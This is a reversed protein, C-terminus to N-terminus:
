RRFLGNGNGFGFMGGFGNNFREFLSDFFDRLRDFIGGPGNGNGPGNVIVGHRGGDVNSLVLETDTQPDNIRIGKEASAHMATVADAGDGLQINLKGGVDIGRDPDLELQAPLLSLGLAVEDELDSMALIFVQDDGDGTNLTANREVLVDSIAIVDDDDGTEVTLNRGVGVAGADVPLDPVDLELFADIGAAALAEVDGTAQGPFHGIWVQDLGAGTEVEVNGQVVTNTMQVLDDGEGLDAQVHTVDEFTAEAAGNITTGDLGTVVYSEAIVEGEADLAASIVIQNSEDDGVLELTNGDLVATVDGALLCRSELNEARLRDQLQVVRRM